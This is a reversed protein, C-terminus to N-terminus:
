ELYREVRHQFDDINFPKGIFDEACADKSVTKKDANASMIIVPVQTFKQSSKLEKCVEIGNGDPLMVDLVIVDPVAQQMALHFAAVNPCITVDYAENNLIYGILEGIDENDEVVYVQKKM